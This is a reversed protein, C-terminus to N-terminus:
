ERQLLLRLGLAGIMIAAFRDLITKARLYCKSVTQTSMIFAIFAYFSLEAVLHNVVVFGKELLTLDPPFIVILVAAAFIVSKPNALNILM